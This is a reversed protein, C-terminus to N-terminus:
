QQELQDVRATLQQVAGLLFPVLRDYSLSMVERVEPDSGPAEPTGPDIAGFKTGIIGEEPLSRSALAAQVEQALLGCRLEDTDSRLYASPTLENCISLCTDPSIATVNEKLRGDALSSPNGMICDSHIWGKDTVAAESDSCALGMLFFVRKQPRFRIKTAAM